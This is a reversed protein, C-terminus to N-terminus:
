SLRGPPTTAWWGGKYFVVLMTLRSVLEEFFGAAIRANVVNLMWISWTTFSGGTLGRCLYPMTAEPLLSVSVAVGMAAWGICNSGFYAYTPMFPIGHLDAILSSAAHTGM